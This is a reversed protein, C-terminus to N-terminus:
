TRWAASAPLQNTAERKVATRLSDPGIVRAGSGFSLVWGVLERSDVVTITMWLKGRPLRQLQQSPHWVRDKAWAATAKDFQLEM